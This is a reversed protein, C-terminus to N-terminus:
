PNPKDSSSKQAQKPWEVGANYHDWAQVLWRGQANQQRRQEALAAREARLSEREEMMARRDVLWTAFVGVVVMLWLVDRITFRLM